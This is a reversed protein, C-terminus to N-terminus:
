VRHRVEPGYSPPPPEPPEYSGGWAIVLDAKHYTFCSLKALALTLRAVDTYTHLGSDFFDLGLRSSFGVSSAFTMTDIKYAAAIINNYHPIHFKGIKLHTDM